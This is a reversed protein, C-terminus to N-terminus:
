LWEEKLVNGDTGAVVLKLPVKRSAGTCAEQAMRLLGGCCPVQMIIVTLTNIQSGDIMATMKRVYSETHSDLKPCGIVLVKGKLYRGHFDGMTFATCDAAVLVDANRFYGASPNVLHLQVPWNGLATQRVADPAVTDAPMTKEAKPAAPAEPESASEEGSKEITLAGRPCYGLCDGLGDCMQESVLRAKGDRIQIAGEHCAPVCLGCGDCLNEDIKIIQRM